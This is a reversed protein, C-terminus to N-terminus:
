AQPATTQRAPMGLRARLDPQADAIRHRNRLEDLRHDDPLLGAGSARLDTDHSSIESVIQRRQGSRRTEATHHHGIRGPLDPQRIARTRLFALDSGAPLRADATQGRHQEYGVHCRGAIDHWHRHAPKEADTGACTGNKEYNKERNKAIRFNEAIAVGTGVNAKGRGARAREVAKVAFERRNYRM